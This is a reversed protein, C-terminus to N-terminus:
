SGQGAHGEAYSGTGGSGGEGEMVMRTATSEPNRQHYRCFDVESLPSWRDDDRLPRNWALLYGLSQRRAPWTGAGAVHLLRNGDGKWSRDGRTHPDRRRERRRRSAVGVLKAPGSDIIKAHGDETVMINAPKLDRHVIGKDHARALGEAMETALELARSLPLREKNILDKLKEGEILETAIFTVGEAEDIEHVIGIHPHILKAAAKAEQVFRCKREPDAVLEPPLVKLAVERDLKLDLARYVIGM